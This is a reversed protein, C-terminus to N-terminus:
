KVLGKRKALFLATAMMSSGEDSVVSKEFEGLSMWKVSLREHEDLDQGVNKPAHKLTTVDVFFFHMKNTMFAPNPSMSGLHVLDGRDFELGTEESLERVAAAVPEEGKEVQGCPLEDLMKMSGYRLQRVSLVLDGGAGDGDIVMMAVWDPARVKVPRFGPMVEGAKVVDFIPTHLLTDDQDEILTDWKELYGEVNKFENKRERIKTASVGIYKEPIDLVHRIIWHHVKENAGGRGNFAIAGAVLNALEEICFWSQISEMHDTGFMIWLEDDKLDNRIDLLTHIFRRSHVFAKVMDSCTFDYMEGEPGTYGHRDKELNWVIKYENTNLFIRDRYGSAAIRAEIVKARDEFSLFQDYKDARYYNVVTPIVIVRDVLGKDLVMKVMAEHAPTWPDFTGGFLATRIRNKKESM